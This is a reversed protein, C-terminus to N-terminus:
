NLAEAVAKKLEVLSSFGELDIFPTDYAMAQSLTNHCSLKLVKEGDENVVYFSESRYISRSHEVTYAPFSKAVYKRISQEVEGSQVRKVFRERALRAMAAKYTSQMRAEEAEQQARQIAKHEEITRVVLQPGAYVIVLGETAYKEQIRPLITYKAYQNREQRRSMSACAERWEANILAELEKITM